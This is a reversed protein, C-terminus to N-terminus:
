TYCDDPEIVSVTEGANARRMTRVYACIKVRGVGAFRLAYLGRSQRANRSSSSFIGTLSLVTLSRSPEKAADRTRRLGIVFKRVNLSSVLLARVRERERGIILVTKNNMLTHRVLFRIYTHLVKSFNLLM